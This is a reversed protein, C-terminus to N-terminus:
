APFHPLGPQSPCPLLCSTKPPRKSKKFHMQWLVMNQRQLFHEPPPLSSATLLTPVIVSSSPLPHRGSSRHVAPRQSSPGKRQPILLSFPSSTQHQHTFRTVPRQSLEKRVARCELSTLPFSGTSMQSFATPWTRNQPALLTPSSLKFCRLITPHKQPESSAPLGSIMTGGDAEHNLKRWYHKTTRTCSLYNRWPWPKTLLTHRSPSLSPSQPSKCPLSDLSSGNVRQQTSLLSALPPTIPQLTQTM